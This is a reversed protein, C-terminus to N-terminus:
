LFQSLMYIRVAISLNEHFEKDNSYPDLIEHLKSLRYRATNKHCFLKAATEDLDGKSLIYVCATELLVNKEGQVPVPLLGEERGARGSIGQVPTVDGLPSLYERMYNLINKSHIEPIILRYIGINDYYRAPDNEMVAVNCAWFAERVVKGFDESIPLVASVGCHIKSEDISLAAFIDALLARFRFIEDTDQSLFIFYTDRFKCLAAKKSIRELSAMKGVMKVIAEESKLSLDKVSVARIFRKFGPNIKKRIKLEERPSAEQDLIRALDRELSAIDEGDRLERNISFIIDEFFEDGGFELIPFGKEDAFDIVEQPLSHYIVKKYAMCSVDLAFLGKVAELIQRPDDKAFLLSTLILSKGTFLTSRPMSIGKTFEFDLTETLMVPRNLGKEGAILKFNKMIPIDFLDRVTLKM